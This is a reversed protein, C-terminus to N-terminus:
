PRGLLRVRPGFPSGELGRILRADATVFLADLREALALYLSDYVAKGTAMSIEVAPDLLSAFDHLEIGVRRLAVRVVRVDKSPIRRQRASACMAADFELLLLDPAHLRLRQNLMLDKAHETGPEELYWKLAVSSDLVIPEM